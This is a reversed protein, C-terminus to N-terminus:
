KVVELKVFMRGILGNIFLSLKNRIIKPFFKGIKTPELEMSIIKFKIEEETRCNNNCLLEFTSESFYHLVDFENYAGKNAYYPVEIDIIAGKKCIRRLENLVRRPYLFCVLAEKLLVYDYTNDEFPYPRKDADCYIIGKGPQIDCNDWGERIDAGCAFNLRKM